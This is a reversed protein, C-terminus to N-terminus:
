PLLSGSVSQVKFPLTPPHLGVLLALLIAPLWSTHGLLSLSPFWTGVFGKLEVNPDRPPGKLVAGGAWWTAWAGARPPGQFGLWVCHKQPLSLVQDM